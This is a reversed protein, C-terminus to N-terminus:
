QATITNNQESTSSLKCFEDPFSAVEHPSFLAASMLNYGPLINCLVFEQSLQASYITAKPDGLKILFKLWSFM